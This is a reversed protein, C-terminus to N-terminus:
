PHPSQPLFVGPPVPQPTEGQSHQRASTALWRRAEILREVLMWLGELPRSHVQALTLRRPKRSQPKAIKIMAQRQTTGIAPDAGWSDHVYRNRTVRLDNDIYDLVTILDNSWELGHALCMGKAMQIKARIDANVSICRFVDDAPLPILSALMLDMAEELLSWEVCVYGVAQLHDNLAPRVFREHDKM